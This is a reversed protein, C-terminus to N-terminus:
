TKILSNCVQEMEKIKAVLDSAKIPKYTLATAGAAMVEAETTAKAMGTQVLTLITLKAEQRLWHLFALGDMEPMILDVIILDVTETNLIKMGEKGHCATLVEYGEQSLIIKMLEIFFRDDDIILIRKGKTPIIQETM